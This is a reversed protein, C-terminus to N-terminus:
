DKKGVAVRAPRLPENNIAYGEQVVGLVMGDQAGDDVPMSTIAEHWVPDFKQHLSDKRIVGLGGLKALFQQRVMEIGQTLTAADTTKQAAEVARDLNDMVDLFEILILRKQREVEQGVDRALRTRAEEFETVAARHRTLTDGLKAEREKLQGELDEVYSPKKQLAPEEDKDSKNAWHRRDVVNIKHEAQDKGPTTV